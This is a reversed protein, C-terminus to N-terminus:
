ILYFKSLNINYLVEISLNIYWTMKDTSRYLILDVDDWYMFRLKNDGCVFDPCAVHICVTQGDTWGHTRLASIDVM